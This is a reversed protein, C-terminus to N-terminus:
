GMTIRKGDMRLDETVAIVKSQATESAVGAIKISQTQARLTDVEDVITIRNVAKVTLSDTIVEQTKASTHWREVIATLAKSLWTTKDAVFALMRAQIDLSDARLALRQRAHLSLTEGEVALNGHGPLALTGYNPGSRELVSLVFAEGGSRYVLVRDGPVPRILCSVAIAARCAAGALTIEVHAADDALSLVVAVIMGESAAEAEPPRAELLTELLPTQTKMGSGPPM